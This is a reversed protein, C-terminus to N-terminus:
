EIGFICYPMDMTYKAYPEIEDREYTIGCYWYTHDVHGPDNVAIRGDPTYGILLIYHGQSTWYGNDGPGVHVEVPYGDQLAEIVEDFDGTMHAPLGLGHASIVGVDGYCGEGSYAGNEKIDLPSVIEGTMYSLAMAASFHGCAAEHMTHGNLDYTAYPWDTNEWEGTEQNYFGAGQNFYPVMMVGEENMGGEIGMAERENGDGDYGKFLYKILLRLPSPISLKEKSKGSSGSLTTSVEGTFRRIAKITTHTASRDHTIGWQAGKAEYIQGAGDYIAVHGSYCIIDGAQAEEISAVEEGVSPWEGSTLYEGSYLGLNKLINYVYHSCDCGDTLSNGGYVYPNGVYKSAEYIIAGGTGTATVPNSDLTTYSQDSSSTSSDSGDSTVATATVNQGGRILERIKLYFANTYHLGDSACTNSDVSNKLVSYTDIYGIGEHAEAFTKMSNNFTEIQSNSPWDCLEDIVPNVSCIYLAGGLGSIEQQMKEYDSQYKSTLMDNVGMMVIVRSGETVYGKAAPWGTSMMWSEGEGVKGVWAENAQEDLTNLTASDETLCNHVADYMGTTRSDGLYIFRTGTGGTATSSGDLMRKGTGYPGTGTIVQRLFEKESIGGPGGCTGGGAYYRDFINGSPHKEGIYNCLTEVQTVPDMSNSLGSNQIASYSSTEQGWRNHWSKILGKVAADCQTVDFGHDRQYNVVGVFTNENTSPDSTWAFEDQIAKFENPHTKCIEKWVSILGSNGQLSDRDASLYPAFGAYIASDKNYCYQLFPQLEYRNDYQYAGYAHGSDGVDAYCEMINDASYFGSEYGIFYTMATLGHEALWDTTYDGEMIASVSGMATDGEEAVWYAAAVVVILLAAAAIIGIIPLGGAAVVAAGGAAAGGAASGGAAAGGAAGGAASGGAAAGGAASGGAANGAMGGTNPVPARGGPFPGSASNGGSGLPNETKATNWKQQNRATRANDHGFSTPRNQSNGPSSPKKGNTGQRTGNGATNASKGSPASPQKSEKQPAPQEPTSTDPAKPKGDTGRGTSQPPEGDANKSPESDQDKKAEREEKAKKAKKHLDRAGKVTNKADSEMSDVDQEASNIMEDNTSM